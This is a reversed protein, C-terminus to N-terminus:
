IEECYDGKVINDMGWLPQINTYHCLEIAEEKNNSSALPVIHDLHWEGQNNWNMKKSFKSEIYLVFEEYSCGLILETKKNKSYEKLNLFSYIRNRLLKKTKFLPDSHYRKMERELGKKNISSKNNNYYKKQTAKHQDIKNKRLQKNYESTCSKCWSKLYKGRKGFESESRSTNCKKCLKKKM